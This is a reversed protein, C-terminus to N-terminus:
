GGKRIGLHIHNYHNGGINSKYIMQIRYGDKTNSIAGSGSWDIEFMKALDEALADMEPTPSTGNSMDSAWAQEPPGQHDSRGGSVTSGHRGNAAEVAKVSNGTQMKNEKAAPVVLEDIIEKPTGSLDEASIESGDEAPCEAGEGEAVASADGTTVADVYKEPDGDEVGLHLHAVGNASGSLAVEQGAEVKDGTEVKNEWNHTYFFSQGSKGKISVSAGAIVSGAGGPDHEPGGAKVVTGEEAAFVPTEKELGIDVANDSQWNGLARAKHDAVDAIIKGDGKSPTAGPADPGEDTGSAGPKCSCTKGEGEEEEEELAYDETPGGGVYKKAQNKVDEVYWGAHNYAFIAKDWDKPAGSASLYNAAAFISDDLNQIDKKGDGNGDAGYMTWTAPLFQMPGQAGASSTPSGDGEDFGNEIKGQAALYSWGDPGLKYKTAAAIYIAVFKRPIEKKGAASLSVSGVDEGGETTEECVNGTVGGLFMMMLLLSILIPGLVVLAVAAALKKSM